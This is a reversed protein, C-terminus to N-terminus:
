RMQGWPRVVELRVPGPPLQSKCPANPAKHHPMRIPSTRITQRPTGEKKYRLRPTQGDTTLCTMAWLDKNDKLSILPQVLTNKSDM